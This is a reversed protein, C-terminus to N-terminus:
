KSEVELSHGLNRAGKVVLDWAGVQEIDGKADEEWSITIAGM